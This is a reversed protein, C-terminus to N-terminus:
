SLARPSITRSMASFCRERSILMATKSRMLSVSRAIKERWSAVITDDPM